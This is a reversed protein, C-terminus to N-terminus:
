AGSEIQWVGIALALAGLVILGAWWSIGLGVGVAICAAGLAVLLDEFHEVLKRGM